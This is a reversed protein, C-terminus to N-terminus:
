YYMMHRPNFLMFKYTFFYHPGDPISCQPIIWSVPWHKWQCVAYAPCHHSRICTRPQPLFKRFHSSDPLWFKSYMGEELQQRYPCLHFLSCFLNNQSQPMRSRARRRPLPVSLITRNPWWHNHIWRSANMSPSWPNWVLHHTSVLAQAFYFIAEKNYDEKQFGSHTSVVEEPIQHTTVNDRVQSWVKPSLSLLERQM